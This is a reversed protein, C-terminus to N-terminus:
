LEACHGYGTEGPNHRGEAVVRYSQLGTSCKQSRRTGILEM